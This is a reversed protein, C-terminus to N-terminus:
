ANLDGSVAIVDGKIHLDGNSKLRGVENGDIYFSIYNTSDKNIGIYDTSSGIATVSHQMVTPLRNANLTGSTIKSASLNPIRATGFTGSTIKSASLNPVDSATINMSGTVDLDGHITIAM